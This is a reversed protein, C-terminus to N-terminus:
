PETKCSSLNPIVMAKLLFEWFPTAAFEPGFFATACRCSARGALRERREAVQGSGAWPIWASVFNHSSPWKSSISNTLWRGRGGADGHDTLVSSFTPFLCISLITMFYVKMAVKTIILCEFDLEHGKERGWRWDNRRNAEKQLQVKYGLKSCVNLNQFTYIQFPMLYIVLWCFRLLHMFCEYLFVRKLKKDM